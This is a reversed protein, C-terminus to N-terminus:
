LYRALPIGMLEEVEPFVAPDTVGSALPIASRDVALVAVEQGLRTDKVAVPQGTAQDLLAIVDPFTSLRAGGADVAMHENLVYVTLPHPQAGVVFRAHDYSGRTELSAETVPGAGLIRGGLTGTIAAIVAAGGGPEAAIMAEGLRIALSIAGLAAHERM